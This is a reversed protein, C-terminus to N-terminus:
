FAFPAMYMIVRHNERQDEVYNRFSNLSKPPHDLVKEKTLVIDKEISLFIQWIKLIKFLYLLTAINTTGRAMKNFTM